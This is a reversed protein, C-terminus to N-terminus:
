GRSGALVREADGLPADLEVELAPLDARLAKVEWWFCQSPNGDAIMRVTFCGHRVRTAALASVPEDNEVIPTLLVTRAEARTLAEFYPPLTVTATGNQLQAEGRYFVAAEPGELTSHVLCKSSPSIPHPIVFNKSGTVNFAGNVKTAGNIVTAGNIATAGNVTFVANITTTGDLETTGKVRLNGPGPDTWGGAGGVNLSGSAFLGPTHVGFIPKTFDLNQNLRLWTGDNWILTAGVPLPRAAGSAMSNLAVDGAVQLRAVPTATAIGVNGAQTVRFVEVEGPESLNISVIVDGTQSSLRTDHDLLVLRQRRDRMLAFDAGPNDSGQSQMNIAFSGDGNKAANTSSWPLSASIRALELRTKKDGGLTLLQPPADLGVGVTGDDRVVFRRAIAPKLQGTTADFSGPGIAFVHLGAPSAETGLVVQLDKGGLANPEIRRVALLVGDTDAVARRFEAKGGSVRVDGLVHLHGEVWVLDNEPPKKPDTTIRPLKVHSVATDPDKGRDRLRILGDAAIVNETVTGVYQRFARILDSDPPMGGAGSNNRAILRGPQGGTKLWRVYGVPVLWLPRNGALPFTQHPISEDFLDPAGTQFAARAKRAEVTRGGINVSGHAPETPEGVEITFSEVVRSYSGDPRCVEFGPAPPRGAKEAYRLWVKILLGDPPTDALFNAFKDTTVVAPALVVITRYYGDWAVGPLISVEVDGSPLKRERLELGAAIGWTHAGLGHRARQVRDYDVVGDLDEAGLYQGEYFDPRVNQDM